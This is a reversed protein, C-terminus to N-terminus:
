SLQEFLTRWKDVVVDEDYLMAYKRANARLSEYLNKNSLLEEICKAMQADDDDNVLLGNKKNEIIFPIGGTNVAIVPLGLAMFEIVSVPANDIKNTSIFINCDQALKEKQQMDIYGPFDIKDEINLKKALAKTETLLGRDNGAMVMYFDKHNDALIKAVRVAMLPNYAEHFSRMWLIRPKIEQKSTFNYKTTTLPNKIILASINKKRLAQQIFSSPTVIIDAKSFIKDFKTEGKELQEPISGGHVVCIIRKEFIKLILALSKYWRISNTTGYLPLIAVSIKNRHNLVFFLTSFFHILKISIRKSKYVPMNNKLFLEALQDAATQQFKKESPLWPNLSAVFVRQKRRNEIQTFLNQWKNIVFSEDYQAAYARANTRLSQFLNKNEIVSIIKQAMDEANDNEALLGNVGDHVMFPIGGTNVTIVPLGLAMFEILSVPANDIRNTSIFIDYERSLINKQQQSIYGPFKIKDQLKLAAVFNLTQALLGRDNGAMEMKFAPYYESLIKAVRIAMFPNYTDHFSRMWLLKPACNEKKSFPYKNLSIPNEIVISNINKKQLVSQIFSSPAVVIDARKFIKYFKQEGAELQAPITGGRVFCIVSKNFFRFIFDLVRYWAISNRTGFLPLIAVDIKKINWIVFFITSFINFRKDPLRHRPNKLVSIGHDNFLNELQEAATVQYRNEESIFSSLSGIFIKHTPM